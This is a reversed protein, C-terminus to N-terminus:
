AVALEATAQMVGPFHPETGNGDSEVGQCHQDILREILVRQQSSRVAPDDSFMPESGLVDLCIKRFNPNAASARARRVAMVKGIM